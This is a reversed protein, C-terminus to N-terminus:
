SMKKMKITKRGVLNPFETKELERAIELLLVSVGASVVVGAEAGVGQYQEERELGELLLNKTTEVGEPLLVELDRLLALVLHLVLTDGRTTVM